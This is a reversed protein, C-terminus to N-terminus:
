RFSVCRIMALGTIIFLVINIINYYIFHNDVRAHVRSLNCRSLLSLMRAVVPYMEVNVTHKGRERERERERNRRNQQREKEERIFAIKCWM